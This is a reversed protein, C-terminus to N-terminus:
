VHVLNQARFPHLFNFPFICGKVVPVTNRFEAGRVFRQPGLILPQLILDVLHVSVGSSCGDLFGNSMIVM